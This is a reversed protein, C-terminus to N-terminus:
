KKPVLNLRLVTCVRVCPMIYQLHKIPAQPTFLGHLLKCNILFSLLLCLSSLGLFKLLIPFSPPPSLHPYLLLLFSIPTPSPPKGRKGSTVSSSKLLPTDDSFVIRSDSFGQGFSIRNLTERGVYWNPSMM